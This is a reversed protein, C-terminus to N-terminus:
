PTQRVSTAMHVFHFARPDNAASTSIADATISPDCFPSGLNPNGSDRRWFVRVEARLLGNQGTAPYLQTIAINACFAANATNTETLPNGLGDFAAGWGRRTEDAENLAPRFWTGPPALAAGTGLWDTNQLGSRDWVAADVALQELWSSAIRSAIALNKSHKNAVATAQQLAIIGTVGITFVTVAMMLEVVTFGRRQAKGLM